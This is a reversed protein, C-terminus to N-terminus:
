NKFDLSLSYTDGESNKIRDAVGLGPVWLIGVDDCVIPIRSRVDAPIKEDIMYKKIIKTMSNCTYKDGTKRSRAYLCSNIINYKFFVNKTLKNIKIKRQENNRNNYEEETEFYLVFDSNPIQNEGRKIIFEYNDISNINKKRFEM